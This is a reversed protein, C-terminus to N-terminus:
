KLKEFFYGPADFAMGHDLLLEDDCVRVTGRVPSYFDSDGQNKSDITISRYDNQVEEKLTYETDIRLVNDKYIQVKGANSFVVKINEVPAPGARFASMMRLQWTGVIRQKAESLTPPADAQANICAFDQINEKKTAVEENACSLLLISFGLTSFLTTKLSMNM